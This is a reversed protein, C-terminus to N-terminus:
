LRVEHGTYIAHLQSGMITKLFDFQPLGTCHGTYYVTDQELLAHALAELRARAPPDEPDLKSIHFGGILVDPTFWRAYNLVGRHSCGSILIRKEGERILLVQEHRFDDPILAGDQERSLGFSDIPAHLPLTNCGCLTLTDCIPCTEGAFILRGCDRLAPDVGIYKEAGHHHKGFAHQSLYIPAHDNIELFRALGGSHDYHGHSLVALDVAALDVGLQRANDAFAGTQGADFLIRKGNTEIYLSLGHEAILAPDHATNEILTRIYM